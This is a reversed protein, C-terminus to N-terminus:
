ARTPRSGMRELQRRTVVDGGWVVLLSDKAIRRTAVVRRGRGDHSEGEVGLLGPGLYSNPRM